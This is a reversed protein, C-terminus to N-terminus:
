VFGSCRINLYFGSWWRLDLGGEDIRSLGPLVAGVFREVPLETVLVEGQLPKPVAGFRLHAYLLPETVVVFHSRMRTEPVQRRGREFRFM